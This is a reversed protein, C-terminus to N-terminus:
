IGLRLNPQSSQSDYISRRKKISLVFICLSERLVLHKTYIFEEGRGAKGLSPLNCSLGNVDM